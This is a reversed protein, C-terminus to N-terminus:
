CADFPSTPVERGPSQYKTKSPNVFVHPSPIANRVEWRSGNFFVLLPYRAGIAVRDIAKWGELFIEGAGRTLFPGRNVM